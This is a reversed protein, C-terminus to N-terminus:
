LKNFVKVSQGTQNALNNVKYLIYSISYIIKEKMM